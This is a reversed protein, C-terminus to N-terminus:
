MHRLLTSSSSTDSPPLSTCTETACFSQKGPKKKLGLKSMLLHLEDFSFDALVIRHYSEESNQAHSCPSFSHRLLTLLARLRSWLGFFSNSFFLFTRASVETSFLHLTPVGKRQVDFSLAEYIALGNQAYLFEKM